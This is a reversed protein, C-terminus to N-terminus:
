SKPGFATKSVIYRDESLPMCQVFLYVNNMRRATGAIPLFFASLPPSGLFFPPHSTLPGGTNLGPPPIIRRLPARLSPLLLPSSSLSHPLLPNLHSPFPHSLSPTPPPEGAHSAAWKCYVKSGSGVPENMAHITHGGGMTWCRPFM